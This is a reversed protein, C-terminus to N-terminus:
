QGTPETEVEINGGLEARDGETQVNGSMLGDGARLLCGSTEHADAGVEIQVEPSARVGVNSTIRASPAHGRPRWATRAHSAGNSRCHHRCVSQPLVTKHTSDNATHVEGRGGVNGKGLGRFERSTETCLQMENM